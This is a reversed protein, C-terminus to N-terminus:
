SKGDELGERVRVLRLNLRRDRNAADQIARELEDCQKSRRLLKASLRGNEIELEMLQGDTQELREFIAAIDLSAKAQSTKVSSVDEQLERLINSFQSMEKM